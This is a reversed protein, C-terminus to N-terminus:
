QLYLRLHLRRFQYWYEDGMGDESEDPGFEGDQMQRQESPLPQLYLSRFLAAVTESSEGAATLMRVQYSETIVKQM